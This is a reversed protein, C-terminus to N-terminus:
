EPHALKCGAIAPRAAKELQVRKKKLEGLTQRQDALNIAKPRTETYDYSQLCMEAPQAPTTATAPIAARCVMWRDSTMVVEELAYGRNLNGQTEVILQDVVRLDRTAAAICREQPTGCAALLALTSILIIRVRM